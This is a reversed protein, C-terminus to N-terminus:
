MELDPGALEVLTLLVKLLEFSTLPFCLLYGFVAWGDRIIAIRSSNKLVLIENLMDGGATYLMIIKSEIYKNWPKRQMKRETKLKTFLNNFTEM